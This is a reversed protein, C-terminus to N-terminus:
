INLEKIVSLIHDFEYGKGYAFNIIKERATFDNVPWLETQKKEVLEKLVKHYEEEEIEELGKKILNEPVGKMRLEFAIRERGWRNVRFKGGAFVKAFREENLFGEEQLMRIISAIRKKQVKWGKLKGEVERTNREQYSCFHLIKQLVRDPDAPKATNRIM